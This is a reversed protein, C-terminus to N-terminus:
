SLKEKSFHLKANLTYFFIAYFVCMVTFAIRELIALSLGQSASFGHLVILSVIVAEKSGVSGPTMSIIGINVSIFFIGVASVLGLPMNLSLALFYFRVGHLIWAVITLTSITLLINRDTSLGKLESLFFRGEKKIKKGFKTKKINFFLKKKELMLIIKYVIKPKRMVIFATIILLIFIISLVIVGNQLEANKMVVYYILWLIGLALIIGFEMFKEFIASSFGKIFRYNKLKKLAYGRYFDGAFNPMFLFLFNAASVIKFSEFFSIKQKRYGLVKKWRFAKVIVSVFTILIAIVFYGLDIELLADIVEKLDVFLFLALLIAVGFLTLYLKKKDM